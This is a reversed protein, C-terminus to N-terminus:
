LTVVTDETIDIYDTTGNITYAVQNKKRCYFIVTGSENTKKTEGNFTVKTKEGCNFTVTFYAHDASTTLQNKIIEYAKLFGEANKNDYGFNAKVYVTIARKTLADESDVELLGALQLDDQAASILENIETNFADSSIRLNVKVDELLGM